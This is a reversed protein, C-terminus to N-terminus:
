RCLEKEAKLKQIKADILIKVEPVFKFAKDVAKKADEQTALDGKLDYDSFQRAEFSSHLIKSFEKDFIGTKVYHMDFHSKIGSHKSTIVNDLIGFCRTCGFIAYYARSIADDYMGNDLLTKSAKLANLSKVLAHNVYDIREQNKMYKLAM